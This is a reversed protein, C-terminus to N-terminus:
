RELMWDRLSTLNPTPTILLLQGPDVSKRAYYGGDPALKGSRLDKMLDRGEDDDTVHLFTGHGVTTASCGSIRTHWRALREPWWDFPVVRTPASASTTLM